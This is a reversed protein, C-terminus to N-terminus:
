EYIKVVHTVSPASRGHRRGTPVLLALTGSVFTVAYVAGAIRALTM